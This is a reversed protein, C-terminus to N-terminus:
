AVRRNSSGGAKLGQGDISAWIGPGGVQEGALKLMLERRTIRYEGATRTVGLQKAWASDVLVWPSRRMAVERQRM